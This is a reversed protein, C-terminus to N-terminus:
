KKKVGEIAWDKANAGRQVDFKLESDSNYRAPISEETIDVLPANPGEYEKRRGTVVPASIQVLKPGAVAEASYKGGQIDVTVPQVKGGEVPIFSIVGNEVPKGDVTVTGSITGTAPGCGLLPILVISFIAAFVARVNEM